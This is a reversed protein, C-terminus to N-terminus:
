EAEGALRLVEHHLEASIWFEADRRLDTIVPGIQSVLGSAKARLLIGLVGIANLGLRRATEHGRREDVLVADARIELALGLAATEGEDLGEAALAAPISSCPQQRVWPPLSLGMFRPLEAALRVFESAVEPPIFVERFLGPLLEAQRVCCLNLIVSTDAVVIV